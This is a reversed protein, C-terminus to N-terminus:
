VELIVLLGASPLSTERLTRLQRTAAKAESGTRRRVGAKDLRLGIVGDSVEYDRALARQSQGARYRRLLEAIRLRPGYPRIPIGAREVRRAAVKRSVGFAKSTANMSAGGAYLQAVASGDVEVRDPTPDITIGAMQLARYVTSPCRGIREAIKPPRVGEGHLRAVAAVTAASADKHRPAKM